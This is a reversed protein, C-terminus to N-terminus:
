EFLLKGEKKAVTHRTQTNKKAKEKEKEYDVFAEQKSLKMLQRLEMMIKM